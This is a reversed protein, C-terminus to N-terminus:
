IHERLIANLEAYDAITAMCRIHRKYTLMHTNMRGLFLTNNGPQTTVMNIKMVKLYYLLCFYYNLFDESSLIINIVIIISIVITTPM